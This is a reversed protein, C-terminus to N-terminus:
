FLDTGVKHPVEIVTPVSRQWASMLAAHLQEPEQARVGVAGFAEALKVFDPNKLEVGVTRGCRRLQINEISRYGGDNFIVAAVNLNYQVATALASGTFLFGGDGVVAVAQRDPYALKAGIAAPYAYGLAALGCTINCTRPLYRDLFCLVWGNATAADNTVIADRPLASQLANVFQWTPKSQSKAQVQRKVEAVQEVLSPRAVPKQRRLEELLQALISKADGVLGVAVPYNRGIVQPDSDIQILNAPFALTWRSTPIESLSSGIVLVLDAKNLFPRAPGEKIWGCGLNLPHDDPIVGKALPTSFCPANVRELLDLAERACDSRAAGNGVLVFPSSAQLL